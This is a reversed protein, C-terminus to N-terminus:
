LHRKNILKLTFVNVAVSALNRRFAGVRIRGGSGTSEGLASEALGGGIVRKCKKAGYDGDDSSDTKGADCSRRV